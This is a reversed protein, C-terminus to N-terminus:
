IVLLERTGSCSVIGPEVIRCDYAPLENAAVM